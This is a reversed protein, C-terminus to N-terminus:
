ASGVKFYLDITDVKTDMQYGRERSEHTDRKECM